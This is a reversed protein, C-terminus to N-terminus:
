EDLYFDKREIEALVADPVLYRISKGDRIRNRIETSSIDIRPLEVAVIRERVDPHVDHLDFGTRNLAVLRCRELIAAYEKWRHFSVLNDTGVILWLLARPHIRGIEDVTDVTYSTGGRRIEVDSVGFRENGAVALETLRLREEAALMSDDDKHPPIASPVFLVLDLNLAEHIMEALILHGIHPPNFSGGYLGIKM